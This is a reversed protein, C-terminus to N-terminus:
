DERTEQTRKSSENGARAVLAEMKLEDPDIDMRAHIAAAAALNITKHPHCTVDTPLNSTIMEQLRSAAAQADALDQSIRGPEPKGDASVFVEALLLAAGSNAFRDLQTTVPVKSDLRHSVDNLIWTMQAMGTALAFAGAGASWPRGDEGQRQKGLDSWKTSGAQPVPISLPFEFGVAVSRGTGISSAVLKSVEDPDNEGHSAFDATSWAFRKRRLSGVDVGIVLPAPEAM